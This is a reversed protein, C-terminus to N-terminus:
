TKKFSLLAKQTIYFNHAKKIIDVCKCVASILMQHEWQIPGQGRLASEEGGGEYLGWWPQTEGQEKYTEEQLCKPQTKRM